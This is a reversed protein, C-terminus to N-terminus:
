YRFRCIRCYMRCLSRRGRISFILTCNLRVTFAKLDILYKFHLNTFHPVKLLMTCNVLSLFNSLYWFSCYLYYSYNVRSATNDAIALNNETAIRKDRLDNLQQTVEQQKSHLDAVYKLFVFFCLAWWRNLLPRSAFGQYRSVLGKELM